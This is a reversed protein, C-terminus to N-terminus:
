QWSFKLCLLVRGPVQSEYDLLLVDNEDCIIVDIFNNPKEYLTYKIPDLKLVEATNAPQQYYETVNTTLFTYYVDMNNIVGMLLGKINGEM